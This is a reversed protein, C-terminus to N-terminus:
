QVGRPSSRSRWCGRPVCRIGILVRALGATRRRGGGRVVRRRRAAFPAAKRSPGRGRRTKKELLLRCVLHGRSQLESTHEESRPSIVAGSEHLRELEQISPAEKYKESKTGTLAEMADYPWGGHIDAYEDGFHEALAKEM